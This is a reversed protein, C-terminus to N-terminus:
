PGRDTDGEHFTSSSPMNEDSKFYLFRLSIWGDRVCPTSAAVLVGSCVHRTIPDRFTFKSEMWLNDDAILTAAEESVPTIRYDRWFMDACKRDSITAVMVGESLVEALFPEPLERGYRLEHRRQRIRGAVFPIGWLLGAVGAAVCFRNVGMRILVAAGLAVILARLFGMNRSM